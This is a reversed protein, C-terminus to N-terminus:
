QSELNFNLLIFLGIIVVMKLTIQWPWKHLDYWWIIMAVNKWMCLLRNKTQSKKQEKKKERCLYMNTIIIINFSTNYQTHKYWILTNMDVVFVINYLISFYFPFFFIPLKSILHIAIITTDSCFRSKFHKSFNSLQSM